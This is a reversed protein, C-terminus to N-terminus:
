RLGCQYGRQRLLISFVPFFRGHPGCREMASDQAQCLDVILAGVVETCSHVWPLPIHEEAAHNEFTQLIAVLERTANDTHFQLRKLDADQRLVSSAHQFTDLMSQYANYVNPSWPLNGPRQPLPPLHHSMLTARYLIHPPFACTRYGTALGLDFV